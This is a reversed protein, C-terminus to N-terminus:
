PSVNETLQKLVEGVLYISGTVVITDGSEGISCTEPTPFLTEVEAHFVPVTHEDPLHTELTHSPTANPQKPTVLHLERAYNGVVSMLSRARLEGTTGAIIVPKRQDKQVLAELHERLMEAGEPNHTADLILTKDALQLTQWRGSWQITRLIPLTRASDVPFKKNLIETAYVAVAANWRQFSGCLNTEPLAGVDPFRERVSYLTCNREKAVQRIVSEAEERLKGILVPKGPKIIGAKELAIQDITDGLLETHDLSISTIISLEPDVVNTADLRGGLGTELIALDVKSKAFHLFAMVTMLEFFSPHGNLDKDGIAAAIPRLQKIYLIIELESLPSRCVQILEREHVLHPSTYLGTRYGNARYIAELMACTSGKGNTGAVHICPFKKEPHGVATNISRISDVGYKVGKGKFSNLYDRTATYDIQDAM